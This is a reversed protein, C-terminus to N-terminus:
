NYQTEFDAKSLVTSYFYEATRGLVDLNTNEFILHTLESAEKPSYRKENMLKNRIILFNRYTKKKM